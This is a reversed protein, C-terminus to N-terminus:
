FAISFAEQLAIAIRKTPSINPKPSTIGRLVFYGLLIFREPLICIGILQVINIVVAKVTPRYGFYRIADIRIQMAHLVKQRVHQLSKNNSHIRYGILSEKLNAFKGFKLFRFLTYYDDNPERADEWLQKQNPLLSRRFMCSPHLMPHFIGYTEYISKHDFPFTKKGTIKGEENIVDAQTGLVITELNALMFKVQKSIRDFRCIDDADMRAVFEGQSAKFGINAAASEGKNNKYSIIKIQPFSQFQRLISLTSDTSGDNVIILELNKYDQNLVGEIAEAVFNSGNYVPMIVSVLPNKNFSKRM